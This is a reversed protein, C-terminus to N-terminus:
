SNCLKHRKAAHSLDEAGGGLMALQQGIEDSSVPDTPEKSPVGAAPRKVARKGLNIQVSISAQSLDVGSSQLAHTLSNLLEQSYQSSVGITGEDIALQQNNLMQSNVACDDMPSLGAWQPQSQSLANNTIIAPTEASRYCVSAMHDTETQDQAGSAAASTVMNHNDDLRGTFNSGPSSGNRLFHSTDPLSDGPLQGKSQANKWFSRFYMNSWPLTKANEQNWEPFTAEYKQVKEQLFRIYEIVELLFTAKDRKQDSHPLLERLIRFRDNIKSRRRQETASHKSRPTNPQPDTGGDSCSGGKRDVRVTFDKLSSSVERRAALGDDDDFGAGGSSRSGSEMVGAGGGRGTRDQLAQQQKQRPPPPRPQGAGAFPLAWQQQRGRAAPQLAAAPQGWLVLPPEAKVVAAAAPAVSVPAPCISFTGVGGPLPLAQQRSAAAAAVQPHRHRSEAGPAAAPLAPSPEPPPAGPKELPQLFDHTKLFFNSGQSPPPPKSDHLQLPADKYNAAATYLSLFDHEHTAAKNGQIGM